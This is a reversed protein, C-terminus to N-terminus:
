VSRNQQKISFQYLIDYSDCLEDQHEDGLYQM